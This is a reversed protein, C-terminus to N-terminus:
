ACQQAHTQHTPVRCSTVMDKLGEEVSKIAASLRDTLESTVLKTVLQVRAHTHCINAITLQPQKCLAHCWHM